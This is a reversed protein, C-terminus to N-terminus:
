RYVGCKAKNDKIISEKQTDANSYVMVSSLLMTSSLHNLCYQHLQGDDTGIYSVICGLSNIILTLLLLGIVTICFNWPHLSTLNSASSLTFARYNGWTINSTQKLKM